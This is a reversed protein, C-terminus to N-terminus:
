EEWEKEISNIGFILTLSTFILIYNTLLVIITLTRNEESQKFLQQEIEDIGFNEIVEIRSGSKSVMEKLDGELQLPFFLHGRDPHIIDTKGELFIYSSCTLLFFIVLGITFKLSKAASIARIKVRRNWLLLLSITGFIEVFAGFLFKYYDPAWLGNKLTLLGPIIGVLATIISLTKKM